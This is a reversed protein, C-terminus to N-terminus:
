RNASSIAEQIEQVAVEPDEVDVVLAKYHEHQLSIVIAHGPRHVDWFMMGDSGVFTGAQLVGPIRSGAVKVGGSFGAGADPESHVETVDRLPISLHSRLAWLKDMGEVKLELSSEGITYETM